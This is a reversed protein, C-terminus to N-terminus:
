WNPPLVINEWYGYFYERIIDADGQRFVSLIEEDSLRQYYM